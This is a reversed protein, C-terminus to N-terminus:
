AILPREVKRADYCSRVPRVFPGDMVLLRVTEDGNPDYCLFYSLAAM